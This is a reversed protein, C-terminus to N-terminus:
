GLRGARDVQLRHAVVTSDHDPPDLLMLGHRDLLVLGRLGDQEQPIDLV